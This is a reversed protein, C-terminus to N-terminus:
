RRPFHEATVFRAGCMICADSGDEELYTDGGCTFCSPGRWDSPTPSGTPRKTGATEAPAAAVPRPRRELCLLSEITTGLDSVECLGNCYTMKLFRSGSRRWDYALGCRACTRIVTPDPSDSERSFM